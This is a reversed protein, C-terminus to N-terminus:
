LFLASKRREYWPASGLRCIVKTTSCGPQQIKKSKAIVM